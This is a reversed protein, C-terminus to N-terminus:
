FRCAATYLYISAYIDAYIYIYINEYMHQIPFSFSQGMCICVYMYM